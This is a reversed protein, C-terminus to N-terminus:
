VAVAAEAESEVTDLAFYRPPPIPRDWHRMAEIWGEAAEQGRQVAEEYSHGHTRCGPLEPVTAIFVKGEPEWELIMSYRLASRQESM